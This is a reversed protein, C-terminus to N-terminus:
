NEDALFSVLASHEALTSRGSEVTYMILVVVM